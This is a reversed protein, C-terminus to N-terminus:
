QPFHFLFGPLAGAVRLLREMLVCQFVRTRDWCDNPNHTGDNVSDLPSVRRLSYRLTRLQFPRSNGNGRQHGQLPAMCGSHGDDGTTYVYLHLATEPRAQPLVSFPLAVLVSLIYSVVNTRRM